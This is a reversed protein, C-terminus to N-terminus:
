DKGLAQLILKLLDFALHADNASPEALEHVARNRIVAFEKIATSISENIANADLLISAMQSISSLRYRTKIGSSRIRQQLTHELIVGMGAVAARYLGNDILAQVEDVKNRELQEILAAAVMDRANEPADADYAIYRTNAIDFPPRSGTQAILVVPKGLAEALGLEYLVNSNASSVDAICVRSERIAARIQEMIVGSAVIQDARLPVLGLSEATPRILNWYVSELERNIPMMVFCLTSSSELLEVADPSRYTEDLTTIRVEEFAEPESRRLEEGARADVEKQILDFFDALLESKNPNGDTAINIIHLENDLGVEIDDYSADFQVIYPMRQFKGLRSKIVSQIQLFDYDTRSYGLFFATRVILMASLHTAVVPYTDLFSDYDNRTIVFHEEHRIDGHMKVLNTAFLGAHFPLQLEGVLSRFPKRVAQLSDELLLDFNTTYITEFPLQVFAKHARGPRVHEPNLSRRVVDILHVRGFKREYLSAADPGQLDNHDVGAATALQVTLKAWDPMSYGDDCEANLSFGAGVFPLCRGDAIDDILPQPLETTVTNSGLPSGYQAVIASNRRVLDLAAASRAAAPGADAGPEATSRGARRVGPWRELAGFSILM